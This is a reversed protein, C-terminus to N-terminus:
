RTTENTNRHVKQSFSMQLECMSYRQKTKKCINCFKHYEEIKSKMLMPSEKYWLKYIQKNNLNEFPLSECICTKCFWPEDRNGQSLTKFEVKSLGSCKLHVWINCIDCCISDQNHKIVKTCNKCGYIACYPCRWIKDANKSYFNFEEKSLKSCKFHFWKNCIDCCISKHKPGVQSWCKRCKESISNGTMM